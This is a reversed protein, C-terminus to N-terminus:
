LAVLHLANTSATADYGLILLDAVLLLTLYLSLSCKQCGLFFSLLAYYILYHCRRATRSSLLAYYILYHCRRATRLLIFMYVDFFNCVVM